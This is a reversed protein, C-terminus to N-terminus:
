KTMYKMIKKMPNLVAWTILLSFLVGIFSFVSSMIIGFEMANDVYGFFSAHPVGVVVYFEELTGFNLLLVTYIWVTGDPLKIESSISSGDTMNVETNLDITAISDWTQNGM